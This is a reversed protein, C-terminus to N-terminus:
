LQELHHGVLCGLRGGAWSSRFSVKFPRIRAAYSYVVARRLAVFYKLYFFLKKVLKVFLKIM